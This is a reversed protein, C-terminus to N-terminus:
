HANGVPMVLAGGPFKTLEAVNEHGMAKLLKLTDRFRAAGGRGPRADVSSPIASRALRLVGMQHDIINLIVQM